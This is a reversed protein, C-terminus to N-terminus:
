RTAKPPFDTHCFQCRTARRDVGMCCAPCHKTMAIAFVLLGVFLGAIVLFVGGVSSMSFILWELGVFLVGLAVVGLFMFM